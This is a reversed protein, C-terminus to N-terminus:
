ALRAGAPAGSWRLGPRGGPDRPTGPLRQGGEQDVATGGQFIDIGAPRLDLESIALNSSQLDYEAEFLMAGPEVHGGDAWIRLSVTRTDGEDGGGFILSVKRLRLPYHEPDAEFVAAGIEGPVFGAQFGAVSDVTWGDNQLTIVRAEASPASTWLVLVLVLLSLMKSSASGAEGSIDRDPGRASGASAPAGRRWRVLIRLLFIAALLGLVIPTAGLLFVILWALVQVFTDAGIRFAEGLTRLVGGGAVALSPYPEHLQITFTCLAVQDALFRRRGEMGELDERAAALAKEVEIVEEVTATRELIALLRREMRKKAGLRADLDMFEETVDRTSIRQSEVVSAMSRVHDLVEDFKDAPVRLVVTGSLLGRLSDTQDESRLVFGGSHSALKMLARAAEPYSPVELQLMADRVLLREKSTTPLRPLSSSRGAKQAGGSPEVETSAADSGPVPASGQEHCGLLHLLLLLFIWTRQM